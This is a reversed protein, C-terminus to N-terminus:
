DGEDPEIAEVSHNKDIVELIPDLCWFVLGPWKWTFPVKGGNAEKAKGIRSSTTEDESGGCFLVNFGQSIWNGIRGVQTIISQAKVM